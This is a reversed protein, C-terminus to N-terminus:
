SLWWVGFDAHKQSFMKLLIRGKKSVNPLKRSVTSSKKGVTSLKPKKQKCNSNKQKCNQNKQKCDWYCNSSEQKCHFFADLLPRLLSYAFFSSQLCFLSWSYTLSSGGKWYQGGSWPSSSLEMRAGKDAMADESQASKPSLSAVFCQESSDGQCVLGFFPGFRLFTWSNRGNKRIRTNRRLFVLVIWMSSKNRFAGAFLEHVRREKTRKAPAVGSTWDFLFPNETFLPSAIWHILPKTLIEVPFAIWHLAEPSETFRRVRFVLFNSDEDGAQFDAGIQKLNTFRAQSNAFPPPLVYRAIKPPSFTGYLVGELVLKPPRLFHSKDPRHGNGRLLIVNRSCLPLSITDSTPPDLATKPLPNITHKGEGSNEGGKTKRQSTPDQLPM